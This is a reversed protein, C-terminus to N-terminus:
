APAGGAVIRKAFYPAHFQRVGLDILCFCRRCNLPRYLALARLGLSSERFLRFVNGAASLLWEWNIALHLAALFLISSGLEAHLMAWRMNMSDPLATSGTLAPVAKQSVLVGSFIAGTVIFFFVFNILCNIRERATQRAFFRHSQTTIWSWSFLLHALIMAIVALGLWEHVALRTFRITQLACVSVLLAIDLWFTTKLRWHQKM